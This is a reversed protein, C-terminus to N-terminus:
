VEFLTGQIYSLAQGTKFDIMIEMQLKETIFPVM